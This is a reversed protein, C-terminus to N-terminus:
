QEEVPTWTKDPNFREITKAVQLSNPGLDKQYVVGDHSVMFTKVGTVRYKAPAAILAFGGIMVGRVVFDMTGLPAAPGQGKLVKFYYGHYPEQTTSYGREIASAVAEGVPGGWSGDANKWALGDRKGPSSIIRQAYQNVNSGDYKQLAFEHQAEVFGHCIEIANLENSGIRRYLLEQRGARADFFWKAGTKVIPMPAPWDENGVLIIAHNKNKPDISVKMKQRAQAAFAIATEKDRAPEGTVILDRGDSGLIALLAAVDYSEAAKVLAEAAQEPTDFARKAPKAAPAKSVDQQAASSAQMFIAIVFASALSFLASRKLNFSQSNM